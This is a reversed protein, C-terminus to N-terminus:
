EPTAMAEEQAPPWARRCPILGWLLLWSVMHQPHNGARQVQHQTMWLSRQRRSTNQSVLQKERERKRCRRQRKESKQGVQKPKTSLSFLASPLYPKRFALTLILPSRSSCVRQFGIRHSRRPEGRLPTDVKKKGPRPM